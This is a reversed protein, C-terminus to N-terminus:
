RLWWPLGSVNIVMHLILLWFSVATYCLSSLETSHSSKSPHSPPKHRHPKLSLPYIYIYPQSPNGWHSLLLSDAKLASSVSSVPKIGPNHLNGPPPGPLGSWYEQRTFGMSLPAQHAVTWPTVFLWVSSFRSLVCGLSIWKAICCFRVCCQLAIIRWKLFDNFIYTLYKQHFDPVGISIHELWLVYGSKSSERHFFLIFYSM